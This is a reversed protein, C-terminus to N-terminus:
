LFLSLLLFSFCAAYAYGGVGPHIERFSHVKKCLSTGSHQQQRIDEAYGFISVRAYASTISTQTHKELLGSSTYLPFLLLLLFRQASYFNHAEQHHHPPGSANMIIGAM